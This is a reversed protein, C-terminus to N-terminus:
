IERSLYEDITKRIGDDFSSPQWGLTDYALRWDLSQAKIEGKSSEEVVYTLNYDMVQSILYMLDYVSLNHGGFNFAVPNWGDWPMVHRWMALKLYGDVIDQV